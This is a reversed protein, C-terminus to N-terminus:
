GGAHEGACERPDRPAALPFREGAVYAAFSRAFYSWSTENPQDEVLCRPAEGYLPVRSAIEGRLLPTLEDVGGIKRGHARYLLRGSRDGMNMWPLWPGERHWGITLDSVTPEDGALASSAPASLSFMEIAQYMEDPSYRRTSPDRALPNPYFLPVDLVITARHGAIELPAGAGLRSQILRNAVHVVPVQQGTWPNTWRELARTSGPALYYMLERSTIHWAGDVQLCRAVNMGELDFLHRIAEGPVVAYVAGSWTTVVQAGDLSCRIRVLEEATAPRRTPSSRPVDPAPAPARCSTALISLALLRKM